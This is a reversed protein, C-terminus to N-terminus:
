NEEAALRPCLCRHHFRVYVEVGRKPNAPLGCDGRKRQWAGGPVGLLSGLFFVLLEVRAEFWLSFLRINLMELNIGHGEQSM